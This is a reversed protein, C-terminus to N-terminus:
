NTLTVTIIDAYSASNKPTAGAPIAAFINWSNNGSASFTNVGPTNGWIASRDYWNLYVNYAITDSSLSSKMARKTIDGGANQGADANVNYAGLLHGPDFGM